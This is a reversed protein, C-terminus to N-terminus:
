KATTEINRRLHFFNDFGIVDILLIIGMIILINVLNYIGLQITAFVVLGTISGYKFWLRIIFDLFNNSRSSNILKRNMYYLFLLLLCLRFFGLAISIPFEM